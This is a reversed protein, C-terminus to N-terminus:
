SRQGTEVAVLSDRDGDGRARPCAEVVDEGARDLTVLRWEHEGEVREFVGLVDARKQPAGLRRPDVPHDERGM